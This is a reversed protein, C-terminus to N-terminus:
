DQGADQFARAYDRYHEITRVILDRKKEDMPAIARAPRGGFFWGAQLVQGGTTTAGAGLLVDDGIVTGAAVRSGIGILSREGITCDALQVNHGITSGAGIRIGAGIARLISNDQVNAAPGIAIGGGGGHFDCGYWINAGDDLDVRGALRATGAVFVEGDNRLHPLGDFAPTEDGRARIAAGLMRAEGPLLPRVPKAPAGAYLYGGALRSQQFVTAGAAIVAGAEVVSGDLIVVDDEITCDDGVTCAHVVANSGITVQQGIQAPYLKHAIHVTSRPGLHLSEGAAVEHGDGRIVSKAGLWAGKGVCVRGLVASRPGAYAPEGDFAPSVGEFPLLYPIM